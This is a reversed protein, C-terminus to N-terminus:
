EQTKDKTITGAFGGAELLKVIVVSENSIQLSDFQFSRNNEGDSILHMTHNGNPLFPFRVELNQMMMKSQIGAIYYTDEKKRALVVSEGPFGSVFYTDDWTVPVNKLFQNVKDPLAAYGAIRDAFHQIGSEFIVSLALEHAFSTLHENGEKYDSFIVPTYDMSGIVNRTFPYVTNLWVAQAAFGEWGYLEGGRVGEMTIFNPFTRAWGRPITCGHTNLVLHNDAADKAIDLYLKMIQQKDSQFFDVKIGKIGMDSIRKLEKRRTEADHMLDRPGANMVKTHPGASNYWILLGVNKEDAYNALEELTGGEMIHWDADVLSYKWNMTDALDVYNKLKEFDKGSEHDGWWSWSSIGPEIWSIDNLTNPRALHHVLNSEVIDGLQKSVMAVRWPTKWPLRSAPKSKGLGYNEWEHPFEINYVGSDCQAALHSGCYNEYVAAETLLIWNNHSFFLAPFSWGTTMPPPAGIKIDKVYGYEYAPSWTALTDYPQIWAYGPTPLVFQTLENEIHLSDNTEGPFIYRFAIGDDYARFVLDIDKQEANQLSITIENANNRNKLRKGTLMEYKEDITKIESAQKFTLNKHFDGDSRIIGLESPKIVMFTDQQHVCRVKYTLKSAQENSELAVTVVIKGNPSALQWNTPTKPTDTCAFLFINAIFVLLYLHIKKM